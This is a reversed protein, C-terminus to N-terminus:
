YSALEERIIFTVLATRLSDIKPLSLFTHGFYGPGDGIFLLEDDPEVITEYARKERDFVEDDFKANEPDAYAGLFIEVPELLPVFIGRAKGLTTRHHHVQQVKGTLYARTDGDHHMPPPTMDPPRGYEFPKQRECNYGARTIIAQGLWSGIDFGIETARKVLMINPTGYVLMGELDEYATDRDEVPPLDLLDFTQLAM